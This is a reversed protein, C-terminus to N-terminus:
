ELKRYIADAVKGNTAALSQIHALVNTNGDDRHGRYYGGMTNALTKKARSVDGAELQRFTALAVAAAFEDQRKAADWFEPLRGGFDAMEEDTAHFADRVTQYNKLIKRQNEAVPRTYGFYWGIGVGVLVGILFLAVRKM